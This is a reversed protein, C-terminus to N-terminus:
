ALDYSACGRSLQTACLVLRRNATDFQLMETLLKYVMRACLHKHEQEPELQFATSSLLGSLTGLARAKGATELLASPSTAPTQGTSHLGGTAPGLGGTSRSSSNISDQTLAWTLAVVASFEDDAKSVALLLITLLYTM